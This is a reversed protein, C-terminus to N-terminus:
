AVSARGINKNTHFLNGPDWIAKLQALRPYNTRYAARTRDDGEDETLFNIYTGGTSFQRLDRWANRAWAINPQDDAAREWSGAINLVAVADRNGVASHDEPLENLAGDIPFILIASHPSLIRSAHEIATTFLAPEYSRLYESKWYYRRGKPQTADLLSQQAVYTRRQLIDGVPSGFGKIPALVRDADELRGTYCVFLAVIPKGHVEKAIWPAPPALRLSAVCSLERPAETVISRYLELVSGAEEGRWAVAGAAIDPGIPHLKYEFSTAVGFNGGGGCVGWFLERNDEESARVVRGDATVLEISALNDSTWGFRRTLYGFGGGLTLGACGTASVFGLVAALGHAQTERDVDGLLCGPEARAVRRAPDVQVGRLQSMDLMLGGDSVALGAINHGGGKISLPLGHVRAANVGAVVDEVGTCRVILAPRRDIMANWVSRAADFEPDGPQLLPGRIQRKLDSVVAQHREVNQPSAM